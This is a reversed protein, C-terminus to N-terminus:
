NVKPNIKLLNQPNSCIYLSMYGDTSHQFHTTFICLAQRAGSSLTFTELKEGSFIINATPNKYKTTKKSEHM